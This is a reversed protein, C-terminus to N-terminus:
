VSSLLVGEECSDGRRLHPTQPIQTLEWLTTHGTFPSGESCRHGQSGLATMLPPLMLESGVTHSMEGEVTFVLYQIGLRTGTVKQAKLEIGNEGPVHTSPSVSVQFYGSTLM